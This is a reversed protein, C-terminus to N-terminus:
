AKEESEGCGTWSLQVVPAACSGHQHIQYTHRICTGVTSTDGDIECFRCGGCTRARPQKWMLRGEVFTLVVVLGITLCAVSILLLLVGSAILEATM